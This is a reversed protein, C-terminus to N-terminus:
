VARRMAPEDFQEDTYLGTLDVTEAIGLLAVDEDDIRVATAVGAYAEIRETAYEDIGQDDAFADATAARLPTGAVRRIRAERRARDRLAQTRLFYLYGFLGISFGAAAVTALASSAALIWILSFLLGVTLTILSRRRRAMMQRRAESLDAKAVRDPYLIAEMAAPQPSRTALSNAARGPVFVQARSRAKPQEAPIGDDFNPVPRTLNALTRRVSLAQMAGGFRAVSREGARDDKRKVVMPVVVILWLVALVAVTMMPSLM